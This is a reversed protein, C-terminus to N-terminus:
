ANNLVSCIYSLESETIQYFTPLCMGLYESHYALDPSAYDKYIPMSSLSYFTPRTDIGKHRLNEILTEITKVNSGETLYCDFLWMANPDAFEMSPAYFKDPNLNSAYFEFIRKRNKSILDLKKLQSCGLAAQINTMRYNFGIDDHWYKREKSMGHDRLMNAKLYEDHGSFAIAGGEGTTIIKNGYFSFSIADAYAGLDADVTHPFLCEASDELVLFKDGYKERLTKTQFQRGYLHVPIILKTKESILKDLAVIDLLRTYKDVPCLVPTAGCYLVANITAAFTVDPVIVEDGSSIGLSKLGLHLATTGNSTTLVYDQNVLCTLQTEFEQIHKGLSSVWGSEAAKTIALSDEADLFPKSIPIM